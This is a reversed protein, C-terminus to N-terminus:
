KQKVIEKIFGVVKTLQKENIHLLERLLKDQSLYNLIQIRKEEIPNPQRSENETNM